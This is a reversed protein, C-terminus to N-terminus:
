RDSPGLPRFRPSFRRRQEAEKHSIALHVRLRFLEKGGGEDSLRADGDTKGDDGFSM